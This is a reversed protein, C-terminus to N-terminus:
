CCKNRSLTRKSDLAQVICVFMPIVPGTSSTLNDDLTRAFMIEREYFERKYCEGIKPGVLLWWPVHLLGSQSVQSSVRFSSAM